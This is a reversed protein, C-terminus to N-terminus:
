ASGDPEAHPHRGARAARLDDPPEAVDPLETNAGRRFSPPRVVLDGRKERACETEGGAVDPDHRAVRRPVLEDLEVTQRDLVRLASQRGPLVVDRSWRVRHGACHAG